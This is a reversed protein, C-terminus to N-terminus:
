IRRPMPSSHRVAVLLPGAPQSFDMLDGSQM